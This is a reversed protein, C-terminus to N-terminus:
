FFEERTDVKVPQLTSNGSLIDIVERIHSVGYVAINSVMAAERANQAPLIMGSFQEKRAQVAMPLVGKVPKLSGDLSLEGMIIFAEFRKSDVQGTAGLIATLITLDYASGAKKLDAPAMNIVVKTRPREYGNNKMATLVREIS